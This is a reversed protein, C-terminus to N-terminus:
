LSMTQSINIPKSATSATSEVKFSFLQVTNEMQSQANHRYMQRANPQMARLAEQIHSISGGLVAISVNMRFDSNEFLLSSLPEQVVIVNAFLNLHTHHATLQRFTKQADKDSTFVILAIRRM